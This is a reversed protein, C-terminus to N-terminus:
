KRWLETLPNTCPKNLPALGCPLNRIVKGRAGPRWFRESIGRLNRGGQALARRVENRHAERAADVGPSPTQEKQTESSEDDFAVPADLTVQEHAQRQGTRYLSDLRNTICKHAYARFPVNRSSDYSDAARCSAVGAEQKIQCRCSPNIGCVSRCHQAGFYIRM